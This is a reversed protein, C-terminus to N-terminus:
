KVVTLKRSIMQVGAKLTYIYVGSSLNQADFNVQHNGAQMPKDVLTAVQRGTMDYVSLEVNSQDALQFQIVTVPNFPNPYNQQLSFKEPLDVGVANQDAAGYGVVLTFRATHETKKVEGLPQNKSIKLERQGKQKVSNPQLMFSYQERSNLSVENGTINDKLYVEANLDSLGTITWKMQYFGNKTTEVHLPIERVTQNQELGTGPYPLTQIAYTEGESDISYFSLWKSALGKASMKPADKPDLGDEGDESFLIHLQNTFINDESSVNLTILSQEFEDSLKEKFYGDSSSNLYSGEPISATPNADTTRIWFSQFPAIEIEDEIDCSKSVYDGAGTEPDWFTITESVNSLDFECFDLAIPHPNGVLYFNGPNSSEGTGDYDLDSYEFMDSLDNWEGEFSLTSSGTGNKQYFIFGEGREPSTSLNPVAEWAYNEQDLEYLSPYESPPLDVDVGDFIDEYEDDSSPSSLFRWGRGETFQVMRIGLDVSLTYSEASEANSDDVVKFDFNAYGYGYGDSNGSWTLLDDDISSVPIEDGAIVDSGDLKLSGKAPLSEIKISYSSETTGFDAPKFIYEAGKEALIRGDSAEPLTNWQFADLALYDMDGTTSFILEDIPIGSFDSSGETAFDIYTFGNNPPSASSIDTFGSSKTFNYVESGDKKGTITLSGSSHPDVNTTSIFLYLDIVVFDTGDNTEITFNSGDNTDDIAATNDIFQDDTSSGNWGYDEFYEIDYTDGSSSSINFQQGNDTFTSSESTEDEFTETTQSFSNNIFVLNLLVLLAFYVKFSMNM